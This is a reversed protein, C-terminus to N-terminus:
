GGEAEGGEEKVAEVGVNVGIVGAAISEAGDKATGRTWVGGRIGLAPGSGGGGGVVTSRAKVIAVGLEEAKTEGIGM